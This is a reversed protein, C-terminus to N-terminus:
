RDNALRERYLRLFGWIKVNNNSVVNLGLRFWWGYPLPISETADIITPNYSNKYISVNKLFFGTSKEETHWDHAGKGQTNPVPTMTEKDLDWYGSGSFNPVWVPFSGLAHTGSGPGAYYVRTGDLNYDVPLGMGEAESRPVVTTPDARTEFDMSDGWGAGDWSMSGGYLWIVEQVEPHSNLFRVDQTYYGSGSAAISFLPGGGIEAKDVDDGSGAFYNYSEKGDIVPKHSSLIRMKGDSTFPGPVVKGTSKVQHGLIVTNSPPTFDAQHEQVLLNLILEEEDSLESKFLVTLQVSGRDLEVIKSSDVSITIESNRIEETLQSPNIEKESVDFSYGQLVM